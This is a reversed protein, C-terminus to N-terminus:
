HVVSKLVDSHFGYEQNVGPFSEQIRTKKLRDKLDILEDDEVEVKFPRIATDDEPIPDGPSWLKKGWYRDKLFEPDPTGTALLYNVFILGGVILVIFVVFVSLIEVFCSM